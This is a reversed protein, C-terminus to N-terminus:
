YTIGLVHLKGSTGIVWIDSLKVPGADFPGIKVPLTAAALVKIGYTSTTLSSSSGLFCDTECTISLERYSEDQPGGRETNALAASLKQAAATITLTFDRVAV